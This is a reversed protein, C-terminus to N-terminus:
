TGVVLLCGQSGQHRLLLRSGAPQRNGRVDQRHGAGRYAVHRDVRRRRRNSAVDLIHVRPYPVATDGPLAYPQSYHRPRQFTYSIYHMHEVYREDQRMVAIRKSDPSWRLNPRVPMPRQLQSPRPMTVGYANFDVGDTTLQVSDKKTARNRVWVNNKYVFAELKKDPSAVYPTPSPLTDSVACTYAVISCVFRKRVATFEIENENEDDQGFKFSQFPLKRGEFATDSAITMARALRM